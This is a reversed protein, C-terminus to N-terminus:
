MAKKSGASLNSTSGKPSCSTKMWLLHIANIRQSLSAKRQKRQIRQTIQEIGLSQAITKGKNQHLAILRTAAM